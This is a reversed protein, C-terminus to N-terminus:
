IATGTRKRNPGAAAVDPREYDHSRHVLATNNMASGFFYGQMMNCGLARLIIIQEATEVGEVVCTIKLNRCLDVISKVIDRSPQDTTVGSVFERDIKIKDLPLRHVYHLSSYGTGFDDLAIRAGLARLGLLVDRAQGFDRMLATETIEFVVRSASLGSYEIMHRIRKILDVSAIDHVSLNFSLDVDSPWTKLAVLAKGFLVETLHNILGMRETAPIFDMPKVNGLVPSEWRALAEYAVIKDRAVDVIPQFRVTMEVNFDVIRLQQETLNQARIAKEHEISFVVATGRRHAKAHYLAYDAREILQDQTLAANAQLAFGISAAVQATGNGLDIPLQLAHCVASGTELITASGQTLPLVFGFEDGGLRAVLASEGLVDLLRKGVEILVRDGAAHGYVDNVPKFGDLDILGVAFASPGPGDGAILVEFDRFFSRRNPLGTLSDRNAMKFNQDSLVALHAQSHVLDTFDRYYTFLIVVLVISVLCFNVAIATLVPEGTTMFRITFPVGVLAILLLAAPRLHMLCFVCGIVTISMFFAVHSKEYAGGYPYLLIAWCTFLLGLVGSLVYTSRIRARAEDITFTERRRQLWIFVRYACVIFFSVPLWITLVLPAVAYHTYALAFVNTNLIFYLLPVQKTFAKIQSEVVEPELAAISFYSALRRLLQM